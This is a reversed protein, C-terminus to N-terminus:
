VLSFFHEIEPITELVSLLRYLSLEGHDRDVAQIHFKFVFNHHLCSHNRFYFHRDTIMVKSDLFDEVNLEFTQEDLMIEAKFTCSITSWILVNKLFFTSFPNLKLEGDDFNGKGDVALMFQLLPKLSGTIPTKDLGSIIRPLRLMVNSTTDQRLM